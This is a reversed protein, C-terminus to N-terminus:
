KKRTTQPKPECSFIIFFKTIAITFLLKKM